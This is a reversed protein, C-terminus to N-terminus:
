YLFPIMKRTKMKYLRYEEGFERTLTEEEVNIRYRYASFMVALTFLIGFFAHLLLSSGILALFAGCYSPHRLSHYVGSTIIHQRVQTQVTATFFKGLTRISWIRFLTGTVMMIMGGVTIVDLTFTHVRLFRWEIVSVMQSVLCGLLIAIVSFRDNTLQQKTDLVSLPPQTLLLLSAFLILLLIRINMFLNIAPMIPLAYALSCFIVISIIKNKM